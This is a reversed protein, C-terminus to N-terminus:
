PSVWLALRTPLSALTGPTSTGANVRATALRIGSTCSGGTGLADCLMAHDDDGSVLTSAHPGAEALEAALRLTAILREHEGTWRLWVSSLTALPMAGLGVVALCVLSELLM